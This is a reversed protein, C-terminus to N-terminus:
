SHDKIKRGDYLVKGEAIIGQIFCDGMAIRHRVIKPTKVLIDVPFPPRIALRIEVAKELTDGELPMIILLNVDSKEIATGAARSGFFIIQRPKFQRVIQRAVKRIDSM